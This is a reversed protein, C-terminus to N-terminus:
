NISIDGSVVNGSASYGTGLQISFFDNIGPYGNDTVDLVFSIKRKGAGGTGAMHAHNGVVNLTTISGSTFSVKSGPDNFTFYGTIGQKKKGSQLKV